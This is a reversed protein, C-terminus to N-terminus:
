IFMCVYVCMFYVFKFSEQRIDCLFILEFHTSSRSTFGLVMVKLLFVHPFNWHQVQCYNRSSSMLLVPFLAFFPYFGLILLCKLFCKHIM